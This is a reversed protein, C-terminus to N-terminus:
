AHLVLDTRQVGALEGVDHSNGAIGHCVDRLQFADVEHHLAAFYVLRHTASLLKPDRLRCEPVRHHLEYFFTKIEVPGNVFGEELGQRLVPGVLEFGRSIGIRDASADFAILCGTGAVM